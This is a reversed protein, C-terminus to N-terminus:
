RVARRNWAAVAERETRYEGVDIWCHKCRVLFWPSSGLEDKLLEAERGCLPCPKPKVLKGSFTDLLLRKSEYHGGDMRCHPCCASWLGEHGEGMEEIVKLKRGCFPCRPKKM